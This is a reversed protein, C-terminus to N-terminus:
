KRDLSKKNRFFFISYESGSAAKNQMKIQKNEDYLVSEEENDAAGCKESESYFM